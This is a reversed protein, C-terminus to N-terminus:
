FKIKRGKIWGDVLYEPLKDPSISISKKLDNNYIWIKGYNSNGTGIQHIANKRGIALKSETKHHYGTTSGPHTSFYLLLGNTMKQQLEAPRPNDSNYMKLGDSIKKKWRKGLESNADYERKAISWGTNLKNENIYTWGGCGGLVINYTDLRAIFSEDVIEAERSNMVDENECEFLIEKTFNEIGFEEISKQLRKGSGMYGDDKNPTKHKGIYIMNNVKNTIKYILYYTTNSEQNIFM